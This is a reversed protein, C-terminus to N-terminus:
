KAGALWAAIAQRGPDKQEIRLHARSGATRYARRAIGDDFHMGTRYVLLRGPACLAQATRVDGSARIGPAFLDGLWGKDDGLNLRAWDVATSGKGGALGRAFLSWIGAQGRGWLHHTSIRPHDQLYAMGSLIDQVRCAMLAQNYTHYHGQDQDHGDRAAGATLFPAVLLVAIGARCFVQPLGVPRKSDWDYARSGGADDALLVAPIRGSVAAPLLLVAQVAAGGSRLVLEEAVYNKGRRYGGSEVELLPATDVGLLSALAPRAEAQWRRWDRRKFQGALRQESRAAVANIIDGAALASAPKKRRSFVLLDEDQEVAFPKEAVKGRGGLLHRNFFAYAAERSPQNYNHDAEIQVQSVQDQAGYLAYVARVAPYEVEPTNETWDGTCSVLLLPRPAMCSAIEVNNIALRLHGQNECRCGGQMHASVMNVPAAAKVRQDVAMLLFTQTGGGSAGSCGIRAADVDPLEALLDVVRISNWLQLSLAGVGWLDERRGGYSRHALQDSDNYGTMDYSFAVIGQRAFNICRGPISNAASNELRGGTWHGHPCAIAPHPGATTPRYLNGCVFFGPMSEFFVKEVSYGEREIRGFIRPKLATKQPLPWLGTCVMIHRRIEAARLEWQGLGTYRRLSWPTNVDRAPGLREDINM